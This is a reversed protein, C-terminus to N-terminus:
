LNAISFNLNHLFKSYYDVAQGRGFGFSANGWGISVAGKYM